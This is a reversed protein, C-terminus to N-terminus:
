WPEGTAYMCVYTRAAADKQLHSVQTVQLRRGRIHDPRRALHARAGGTALALEPGRRADALQSASLEM